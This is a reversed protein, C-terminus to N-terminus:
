KALTAPSNKIFIEYFNKSSSEVARSIVTKPRVSRYMFANHPTRYSVLDIPDRTTFVFKAGDSIESEM